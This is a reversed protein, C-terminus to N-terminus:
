EDGIGGIGKFTKEKYLKLFEWVSAVRVKSRTITNSDKLVVSKKHKAAEQVVPKKVEKTKTIPRQIRNAVYEEVSEKKQSVPFRKYSYRQTECFSEELTVVKNIIHNGKKRLALAELPMTKSLPTYLHWWVDKQADYAIVDDGIKYRVENGQINGCKWTSTDPKQLFNKWMNGYVGLDKLIKKTITSAFTVQPVFLLWLLLMAIIKM